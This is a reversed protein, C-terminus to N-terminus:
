GNRDWGGGAVPRTCPQCGISRYGAASLPHDPLGHVKKYIDVDRARWRALPNIRVRPGVAEFVPLADRTAAQYRKRGTMWGRFPAMARAMPEVKRVHCCADADQSFLMGARDVTGLLAPDPEVIRVDVLGLKEILRKRHAHTGSFHKGTDLFQVPLTRDIESIMHLLVASEAGFSSVVSIEEAFLRDISLEIILEPELRGYRAQLTAAEERAEREADGRRSLDPPLMFTEM